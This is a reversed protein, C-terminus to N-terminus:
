VSRNFGETYEGRGRQGCFVAGDGAGVRSIESVSFSVETLDDVFYLRVDAVLLDFAQFM